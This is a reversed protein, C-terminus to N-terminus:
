HNLKQIGDMRNLPVLSAPQLTNNLTKPGAQQQTSNIVVSDKILDIELDLAQPEPQSSLDVQKMDTAELLTDDLPATAIPFVELSNL